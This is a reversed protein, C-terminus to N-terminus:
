RVRDIEAPNIQQGARAKELLDQIRQRQERIQHRQIALAADGRAQPAGTRSLKETIQAARSELQSIQASGSGQDASVPQASVLAGIALLIFIPRKV